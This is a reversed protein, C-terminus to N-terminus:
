RGHAYHGGQNAYHAHPKSSKADAPVSWALASIALVALIYRRIEGKNDTEPEAIM